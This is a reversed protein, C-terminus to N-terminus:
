ELNWLRSFAKLIKQAYFPKQKFIRIALKEKKKKRMSSYLNERQNRNRQMRRYDLFEM